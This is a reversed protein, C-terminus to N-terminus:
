HKKGCERCGTKQHVRNMWVRGALLSFRTHIISETGIARM